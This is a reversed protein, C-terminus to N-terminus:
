DVLVIGVDNIVQGFRLAAVVIAESLLRARAIASKGERFLTVTHHITPDGEDGQAVNIIVQDFLDLVEQV